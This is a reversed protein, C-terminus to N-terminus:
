RSSLLAAAAGAVVAALGFGCLGAAAALSIADRQSVDEGRGVARAAFAAAAAERAVATRATDAAASAAKAVHVIETEAARQATPAAPAAAAAAAAAAAPPAAAAAAAAAPPAAAAPAAPPAAAKAGVGARGRGAVEGVGGGVGVGAGEGDGGEVGGAGRLRGAAAVALAVREAAERAAVAELGLGSVRGDIGELRRELEAQQVAKQFFLASNLVVLTLTGYAAIRRNFEAWVVEEKMRQSVTDIYSSQATDVDAQLQKLSKRSAAEEAVLANESVVLETYKEVDGGKWHSKRELLTQLQHQADARAAVSQEFREEAEIRAQRAARFAKDCQSVSKDFMLIKETGTAKQALAFAQDVVKSAANVLRKMTHHTISEVDHTWPLSLLSSVTHIQRSNSVKEHGGKRQTALLSLLRVPARVPAESRALQM